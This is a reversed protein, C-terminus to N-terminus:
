NNLVMERWGQRQIEMLPQNKKKELFVFFGTEVLKCTTASHTKQKLIGPALM